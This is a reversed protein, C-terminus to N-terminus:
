RAGGHVPNASPRLAGVVAGSRALAVSVGLVALANVPHLAAILSPGRVLLNQVITLALLLASLGTRRMGLRGVLALVLLVLSALAILNGNTMHARFSAAGFLGLGALFFQAIVAAVIVWSLAGHMKAIIDRM